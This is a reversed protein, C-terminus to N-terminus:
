KSLINKAKFLSIYKGLVERNFYDLKKHNLKNIDVITRQQIDIGRILNLITNAVVGGAIQSTLGLQPFSAYEKKLINPLAEVMDRNLNKIGVINAIKESSNMREWKQVENTKKLDLRGGFTKSNSFRFDEYDMIIRGNGLDTPMLVILKDKLALKRINLKEEPDDIVDIIIKLPCDQVWLNEATKSCFAENKIEWNAYPNLLLLDENIAEAKQRGTNTALTDIRSLHHIGIEKTDFGKMNGVGLKALAKIISAGVSVGAVVVSLDHKLAEQEEKSIIGEHSSTLLAEHIEQPAYLVTKKHKPLHVLTGKERVLDTIITDLCESGKYIELNVGFLNQITQIKKKDLSDQNDLDKHFKREVFDQWTQDALNLFFGTPTKELIDRIEGTSAKEVSLVTPETSQGFNEKEM